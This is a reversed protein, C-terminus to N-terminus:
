CFILRDKPYDLIRYFDKMTRQIEKAVNIDALRVGDDRLYPNNEVTKFYIMDYTKIHMTALPLLAEILDYFELFSAYALNDCVSRDCVLIDYKSGLKLERQIQSVFIWLQSERTASNNIPFPSETALENVIVVSKDPKELKLEAVKQYASLSKGTGQAGSFAVKM